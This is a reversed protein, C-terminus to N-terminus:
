RLALRWGTEVEYAEAAEAFAAPDVPEALVIEVTREALRLTPNRALRWDTPLVKRVAEVLQQQNPEQCLRVPWGSEAALEELVSAYRAGVEPTVFAVELYRGEHGGKLGKRYPRHYLGAFRRDVEAFLKNQEWRGEERGGVAKVSPDDVELRFGTEERFSDLAAEDPEPSGPLLRVRVVRESLLIAPERQLAGAPGLARRAAAALEGQHVGEHIDIRWGTQSALRDVTEKYRERAVAPFHFYLLLRGEAPYVGTRYPRAEEPFAREVLAVAANQELREGAPVEPALAVEPPEGALRPRFLYPRQADQRFLPSPALAAALSSELSPSSRGWLLTALERLAYHRSGGGAMLRAHLGQVDVPPLAEVEAAQPALPSPAPAGAGFELAEGIAPRLVECGVLKAALAERAQAEGHVLVVKRAGTAAAFSALWAGDAHASLGFKAVQAGVAIEQGGLQITRREGGALELLRRGPADEDQYGTIFIANKADAALRGAYFVSPGGSLMGSSAVIAGPGASLVRERQGRKVQTVWGRGDFFPDGWRARRRLERSGVEAFGAYLSCVSSVLGDVWIPFRPVRREEQAARLAFIVEQARGLAFAPILVKGGGEVVEAVARALREEEIRRSPHLAAGYTSELVLVDPRPKLAPLRCGEVTRQGGGSVDGSVVLRGAPWDLVVGSAGLVHGAPFLEVGFGAGRTAVGWPLPHIRELTAEAAAPSYLPIEGELELRGEMVRLADGLMVRLIAFTGPTCYIPAAPYEQSIVPLAGAHDLHAHTVVIADIGGLEAVRALHPLPDAAEGLRIGADVLVKAGGLDCWLCSAGVEDAGGLFVLKM